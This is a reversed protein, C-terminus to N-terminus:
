ASKPARLVRYALNRGLGRPVVRECEKMVSAVVGRMAEALPSDPEATVVPCRRQVSRFAARDEILFGAYRPRRRLFKHSVGTIREAVSKAEDESEVRNVVLLPTATSRRQWLVKLFAYADTMATVDPTTIVVVVDASAAFSLTQMSIGAASDVVLYGYEGELDELGTAIAVLQDPALSALRAYGSGGAILDIQDSCRAVIDRLRCDQDIFDAISQKPHLDQLIHANGVGFDADLVLTRDNEALQAALSATLLSKGTGGKGSAVCISVARVQNTEAADKTARGARKSRRGGAFTETPAIGEGWAPTGSEQVGRRSRAGALLNRAKPWM